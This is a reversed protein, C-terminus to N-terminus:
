TVTVVVSLVIVSVNEVVDVIMDVSVSVAVMVLVEVKISEKEAVTKVVAVESIGVLEPKRGTSDVVGVAYGHVCLRRDMARLLLLAGSFFAAGRFLVVGFDDKLRDWGWLTLQLNM